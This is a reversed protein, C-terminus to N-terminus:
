QGLSEGSAWYGHPNGSPQVLQELSKRRMLPQGWAGGTGSSGSRGKMM